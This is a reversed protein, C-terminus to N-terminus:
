GQKAQRGSAERRAKGMNEDVFKVMMLENHSGQKYTYHIEDMIRRMLCIGLGGKRGAKVHERVDVEPAGRPDFGVGRDRITCMFREATADLQVEIEAPPTDPAGAYAHEMINAMAEDVALAILNAKVPAFMGNGVIEVVAQRVRALCSTDNPVVLELHTHEIM